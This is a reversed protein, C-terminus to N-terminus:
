LDLQKMSYTELSILSFIVLFQLDILIRFSYVPNYFLFLTDFFEKNDIDM